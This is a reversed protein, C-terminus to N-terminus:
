PLSTKKAFGTSLWIIIILYSHQLM